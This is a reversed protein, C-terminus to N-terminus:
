AAAALTRRRWVLLAILLSNMLFLVSPFLLTTITYASMAFISTAQKLNNVVFNWAMEEHPKVYAKRLTPGYATADIFTVIVVATLPAETLWWLPLAVLAAMFFLWDSRTVQWTGQRFSLLVILFCTLATLGTAWAGPGANGAYQAAAAISTTVGWIIWTFVHPKTKHKIVSWFYPARAIVVFALSLYGFQEKDLLMM